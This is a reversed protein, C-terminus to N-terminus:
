NKSQGLRGTMEGLQRAKGPDSYPINTGFVPHSLGEIANLWRDSTEKSYYGIVYGINSGAVKAPDKRVQEDDSNSLWEVYEAMFQRMEDPDKLEEIAIFAVNRQPNVRQLRSLISQPEDARETM